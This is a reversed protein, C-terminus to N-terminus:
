CVVALWHSIIKVVAVWVLISGVFVGLQTKIEWRQYGWWSVACIFAFVIFGAWGSTLILALKHWGSEWPMGTGCTVIEVEGANAYFPFFLTFFIKKM